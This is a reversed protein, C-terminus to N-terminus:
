EPCEYMSGELLHLIPAQKQKLGLLTPLSARLQKASSREVAERERDFFGRGLALNSLTLEVLEHRPRVMRELSGGGRKVNSAKKKM